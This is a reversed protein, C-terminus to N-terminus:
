LTISIVDGNGSINCDFYKEILKLNCDDCGYFKKIEDISLDMHTLLYKFNM